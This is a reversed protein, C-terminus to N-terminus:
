DLFRDEKTNLESLRSAVRARIQAQADDNRALATVV